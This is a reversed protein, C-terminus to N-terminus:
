QAVEAGSSQQRIITDVELWILEGEPYYDLRAALEAM